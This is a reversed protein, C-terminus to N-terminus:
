VKKWTHQVTPLPARGRRMVWLLGSMLGAVAANSMKFEDALKNWSQRGEALAVFPIFSSKALAEESLKGGYGRQLRWDMHYGCTLTTLIPGSFMAVSTLHQTRFLVGASLFSLTWFAPHRTVRKLGSIEEKEGKQGPQDFDFPCRVGFSYTQSWDKESKPEKTDEKKTGSKKM